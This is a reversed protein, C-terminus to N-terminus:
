ARGPGGSRSGSATQRGDPADRAVRLRVPMRPRPPPLRLPGDGPTFSGLFAPARAGTATHPGAPLGHAGLFGLLAFLCAEKAQAPLGHDTSTTVRVPAARDTIRAMLVPNRTGGGSVVLEALGHARCAGAVLDATLETLTALVDDWRTPAAAGAAALRDRLYGAHFLERGTSKPPPLRYYPEALLATLLRPDVRGRAARAGGTDMREAGGGAEAAAADLLAGAPGIDYAVVAGDPGRVTLNAIGGLNLAGRRPGPGPPLLWLADLVAALPAGHGGRAIDRTRLDGVVPRGTAEAIWAAGGLQLTGRAHPGDVWHHVTQGHSVVLDARGGALAADARAAVEGFFQGLGTDLRCIREATVTGPPLAALLEDRLAPPYPESHLGLYRLVVEDGGPGPEFWLEAAGADVADCSTGSLVGIV